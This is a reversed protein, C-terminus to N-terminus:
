DTETIARQSRHEIIRRTSIMAETPEDISSAVGPIAHGHRQEDPPDIGYPDGNSAGVM